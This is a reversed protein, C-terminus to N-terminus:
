PLPHPSMSRTLIRSSPGARGISIPAPSKVMSHHIFAAAALLGEVVTLQPDASPQLVPLMRISRSTWPAPSLPSKPTEIALPRRAKPADTPELPVVTQPDAVTASLVQCWM